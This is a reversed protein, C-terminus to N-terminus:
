KLNDNIERAVKLNKGPFLFGIAAFTVITITMIFKKWAISPSKIFDRPLLCLIRLIGRIVGRELHLNTQEKLGTKRLIRRSVGIHHSRSAIFKPSLRYAYVKHWVRAKPNYLLKKGTARKVRLSFELDEAIPQHYGLSSLFSGAKDFAERKLSMNMGWLSRAEAIENWGTWDTCSILWYFNKPLWDLQKDQWLPLAAGSVGIISDDQYIKVMEEAWEPFLVSDDDVFALISGQALKAGLNRAGGLGLKETSFIVKFNQLGLKDGYEKVKEYLAHSGEAIFITEITSQSLHKTESTNTFLQAKVSDFLDCIDKFRDVSYSTIVISLQIPESSNM